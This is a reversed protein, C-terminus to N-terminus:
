ANVHCLKKKRCTDKKDYTIILTSVDSHDWSRISRVSAIITDKATKRNRINILARIYYTHSSLIITYLNNLRSLYTLFYEHNMSLKYISVLEDNKKVGYNHRHRRLIINPSNTSKYACWQSLMILTKQM